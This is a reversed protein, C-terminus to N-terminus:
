SLLDVTIDPFASLRSDYTLFRQCGHQIAAALHLADMPRFGHRARIVAARDCVAPTIPVVEVDESAFYGDFAALTVADNLRLPRVRCEM